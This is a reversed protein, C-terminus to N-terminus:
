INGMCIGDKSSEEQNGNMEKNGGGNTSPNGSRSNFFSTPAISIGCKSGNIEISSLSENDCTLNLAKEPKPDNSNRRLYM